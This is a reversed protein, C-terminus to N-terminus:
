VQRRPNRSNPYMSQSQQANLDFAGHPRNQYSNRIAENMNPTTSESTRKSILAERETGDEIQSLVIDLAHPRVHSSSLCIGHYIAGLENGVKIGSMPDTLDLMHTSELGDLIVAIELTFVDTRRVTVKINPRVDDYRVTINADPILLDINLDSLDELLDNLNNKRKYLDVLSIVEDLRLNSNSVHRKLRLADPRDEVATFVDNVESLTARDFRMDWYIRGPRRSFSTPLFEPHNTCLLNIVGALNENSLYPVLDNINPGEKEATPYTNTVEDFLVVCPKIPEIISTLISPHIPTTVEIVPLGKKIYRNATMNMLRTKGTGAPGSLLIGLPRINKSEDFSEDIRRLRKPLDKGVTKGNVPMSKHTLNLKVGTMTMEIEYVAPELKKVPLINSVKIMEYGAATPVFATNNPTTM